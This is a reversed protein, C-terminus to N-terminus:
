GTCPFEGEGWNIGRQVQLALAFNAENQHERLSITAWEFKNTCAVM